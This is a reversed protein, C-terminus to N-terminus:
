REYGRGKSHGSLYASTVIMLVMVVEFTVESSVLVKNFLLTHLLVSLIALLWWWGM